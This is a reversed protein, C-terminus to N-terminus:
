EKSSSAARCALPLRAGVLSRQSRFRIGQWRVTMTWARQHYVTNYTCLVVPVVVPGKASGCVVGGALGGVLWFVALMAGVGKGRCLGAEHVTPQRVPRGACPCRPWDPGRGARPGASYIAGPRAM